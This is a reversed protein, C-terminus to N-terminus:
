FCAQTVSTVTTVSRRGPSARHCGKMTPPPRAPEGQRSPSTVAPIAGRIRVRGPKACIVGSSASVPTAALVTTNSAQSHGICAAAVAGHAVRGM